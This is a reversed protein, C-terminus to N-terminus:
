VFKELHKEIKSSRKWRYQEMILEFEQKEENLPFYEMELMLDNSDIIVGMARCLFRAWEFSTQLDNFIRDKRVAIAQIM